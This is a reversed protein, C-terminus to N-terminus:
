CPRRQWDMPCLYASTQLASRRSCRRPRGDSVRWGDGGINWRRTRTLIFVLIKRGRRMRGVDLTRDFLRDTLDLEVRFYAGSRMVLSAWALAGARVAISVFLVMRSVKTIGGAVPPFSQM